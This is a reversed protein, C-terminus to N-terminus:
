GRLPNLARYRMKTRLACAFRRFVVTIRWKEHPGESTAPHAGSPAVKARGFDADEFGPSSTQSFVTPCPSMMPGSPKAIFPSTGENGSLLIVARAQTSGGHGEEGKLVHKM